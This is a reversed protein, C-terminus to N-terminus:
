FLPSSRNLSALVAFHALLEEDNAVGRAAQELLEPTTREMLAVWPLLAPRNLRIVGVPDIEWIRVYRPYVELRGGRRDVPLIAPLRDVTKRELLAVTLLLPRPDYEPVMMATGYRRAIRAIERDDWYALAEFIELTRHEGADILFMLDALKPAAM